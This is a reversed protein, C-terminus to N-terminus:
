SLRRDPGDLDVKETMEFLRSMLARATSDDHAEALRAVLASATYNTTVVIPKANAYRGDIVAYLMTAAWSTPNEKGLDDIVLLDCGCLKEFVEGEPRNENYSDKFSSLMQVSSVFEVSRGREDFAKAIAAAMLTKATGPGGQIYLGKGTADIADARVFNPEVDAFLDPLLQRRPSLQENYARVDTAFCCSYGCWPCESVYGAGPDMTGGCAPCLHRSGHPAPPEYQSLKRASMACGCSGYVPVAKEVTKGPGAYLEVTTTSLAAGCYDCRSATTCPTSAQM